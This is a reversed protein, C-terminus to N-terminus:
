GCLVNGSAVYKLETTTGQTHHVDLDQVIDWTDGIVSLICCLEVFALRVQVVHCLTIFLFMANISLFVGQNV